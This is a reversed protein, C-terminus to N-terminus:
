PTEGQPYLLAIPLAIPLVNPLANLLANPLANPLAIPLANPLTILLTNLLTNLLLSSNAGPSRLSKVVPFDWAGACILDMSFFNM